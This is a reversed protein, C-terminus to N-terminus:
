YRCYPICLNVICVKEAREKARKLAAKPRANDNRKGDEFIAKIVVETIDRTWPKMDGTLVSIPPHIGQTNLRNLPKRNRRKKPWGRAKADEIRQRAKARAQSL